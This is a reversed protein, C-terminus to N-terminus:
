GRRRLWIRHSILLEAAAESPLWGKAWARIAEALDDFCTTLSPLEEIGNIMVEHDPRDLGVSVLFPYNLAPPVPEQLALGSQEGVPRPHSLELPDSSFLPIVPSTVNRGTPARSM